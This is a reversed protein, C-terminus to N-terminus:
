GWISRRNVSMVLEEIENIRPKKPLSTNKSAYEFKKEKESVIEYIEDYSYEGNRIAVLDKRNERFTNVGKGELIEAGMDLLRILHMAHKLLHEEDKKKNRNNLKGYQKTVKNMEDYINKFDRLPYHKLDIDMFIEKDYGEKDSNDIYVNIKGSKSYDSFNEKLHELSNEISKLIHKEKESQTHRDRARANNLRRLQEQAYGGFSKICKKSLFLDINDRLLRGEEKLIFIHEDKVALIEIINPNCNILLKIIKNFSYITTDTEKNIFQEFKSLGILENKNELAIGRLDIDSTEINTGYAHSGGLALLIINNGLHENDRLFSYKNSNILEKIQRIELKNM